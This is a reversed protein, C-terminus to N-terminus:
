GRLRGLRRGGQGSDGPFPWATIWPLRIEATAPSENGDKAQPILGLAALVTIFGEVVVVGQPFLAPIPSARM